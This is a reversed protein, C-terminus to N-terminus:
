QIVKPRNIYTVKKGNQQSTWHSKVMANLKVIEGYEIEIKKSGKYIVPNNQEDRFLHTYEPGYFGVESFIQFLRLNFTDRKGVTGVHSAKKCDYDIGQYKAESAGAAIQSKTGELSYINGDVFVWLVRPRSSKGRIILEEDVEFPLYEGARFVKGTFECVYGDYPAHARGNRDITCNPYYELLVEQIPRPAKAEMATQIKNIDTAFYM